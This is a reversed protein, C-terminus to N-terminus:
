AWSVSSSHWLHLNSTNRSPVKTNLRWGSSLNKRVQASGPMRSSSTIWWIIPFISDWESYRTSGCIRNRGAHGTLRRESSNLFKWCRRQLRYKYSWPIEVCAPEISKTPTAPMLKYYWVCGIAVVIWWLDLMTLNLISIVLDPFGWRADRHDLLGHFVWPYFYFLSRSYLFSIVILILSLSLKIALSKWRTFHFAWMAFGITFSVLVSEALYFSLVAIPVYGGRFYFYGHDPFILFLVLLLVPTLLISTLWVKLSYSLVPKM